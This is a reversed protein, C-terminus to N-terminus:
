NSLKVPMIEKSYVPWWPFCAGNAYYYAAGSPPLVVLPRFRGWRDVQYAQWIAYRDVRLQGEGPIVMVKPAPLADAKPPEAKPPEQARITGTGVIMMGVLA